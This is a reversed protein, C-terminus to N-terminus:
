LMNASSVGQKHATYHLLCAAAVVGGLARPKEARQASAVCQWRLLGCGSFLHTCVPSALAPPRVWFVFSYAVTIGGLVMFLYQWGHLGHLGETM